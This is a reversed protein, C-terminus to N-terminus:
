GELARRMAASLLVYADVADGDVMADSLQLVVYLAADRATLASAHTTWDCGSMLEEDPTAVVYRIFSDDDDYYDSATEDDQLYLVREDDIAVSLANFGGGLDEMGFAVDHSQLEAALPRLARPFFDFDSM